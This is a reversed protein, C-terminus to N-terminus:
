LSDVALQIESLVQQVGQIAPSLMMDYEEKTFARQEFVWETVTEEGGTDAPFTERRINKREYVYFESSETDIEAPRETASSRVTVFETM